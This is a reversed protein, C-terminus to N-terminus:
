KLAGVFNVCAMHVRFTGNGRAYFRVRELTELSGEGAQFRLLHRPAAAFFGDNSNTSFVAVEDREPVQNCYYLTFFPGGEMFKGDVTPWADIEIDWYTPRDNILYINASFLNAKDDELIISGGRYDKPNFPSPNWDTKLVRIVAIECHHLDWTAGEVPNIVTDAGFCTCQREMGLYLVDSSYFGRNTEFEGLVGTYDGTCDLEAHRTRKFKSSDGLGSMPLVLECEIAEAGRSGYHFVAGQCAIRLRKMTPDWAAQAIVYGDFPTRPLEAWPPPAYSGSEYRGGPTDVLDAPWVVSSLVNDWPIWGGTREDLVLAAWSTGQEIPVTFIVKHEEPIFVASANAFGKRKLYPQIFDSVQVEDLIGNKNLLCIQGESVTYIGRDGYCFCLPGEAGRTDSVELIEVDSFNEWDKGRVISTSGRKRVILATESFLKGPVSTSQLATPYDMDKTRIEPFIPNLASADAIKTCRIVSAQRSDQCGGWASCVLRGLHACVVGPMTYGEPWDESTYTASNGDWEVLPNTGTAIFCKSIFNAYSITLAYNRFPGTVGGPYAIISYEGSAPTGSVFLHTRDNGTIEFTHDESDLLYWDLWTDETWAKDPDTFQNLSGEGTGSDKARPTALLIEKLNAGQGPLYKFLRTPTAILQSAPAGVKEFTLFGIIPELLATGTRPDILTEQVCGARRQVDGSETFEMNRCLPVRPLHDSKHETSKKDTGGSFDKWRVDVTEPHAGRKIEHM